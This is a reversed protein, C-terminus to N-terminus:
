EPTRYIWETWLRFVASLGHVQDTTVQHAAARSNITNAKNHILATLPKFNKLISEKVLMFFLGVLIEEGEKKWMLVFM